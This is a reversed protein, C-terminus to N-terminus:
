HSTKHNEKGVVHHPLIHNCWKRLVQPQTNRHRQLFALRNSRHRLAEPNRHGRSHPDALPLARPEPLRQLSNLLPSSSQETSVVFLYLKGKAAQV